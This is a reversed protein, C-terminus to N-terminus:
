TELVIDIAADDNLIARQFKVHSLDANTSVTSKLRQVCEGTANYGIVVSNITSPPVAFLLVNKNHGDPGTKEAADNFNRIIRWEKEYSWEISKTYLATEDPLNLFYTPTRELYKVQRLHNFSDGENRKGWFWTHQTDFEILFGRGGDAYRAWMLASLPTESLSLVGFNEDLKRYVEKVSREYNAPSEVQDAAASVIEAFLQDAKEPSNRLKLQAFIWPHTAQFRERVDKEVESRTGMGKLPPKFESEDNLVSAQSFRILLKELVNGTRDPPLYKYVSKPGDNMM